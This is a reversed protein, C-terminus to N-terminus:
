LSLLAIVTKSDRIKGQRAATIAKKLPWVRSEVFEDEDPNTKGPKLGRAVYIHIVENSFAATPWYPLLKKWSRATYGTEEQLERKVCALPNEGRALKGAPIEWTMTNVPYRFQRVLIVKDKGLLPLVAVAGPHDLYERIAKKGNPLRIQDIRFHVAKGRFLRQNRIKKERFKM